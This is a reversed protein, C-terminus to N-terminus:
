PPIEDEAHVHRASQGVSANAPPDRRAAKQHDDDIWYNIKKILDDINGPEYTVLGPIELGPTKPFILFGGRGLVEPVRDSWYRDAGAFCSDGVMVRASAYLNNIDVGDSEKTYESIPATHRM